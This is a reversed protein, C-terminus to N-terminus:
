RRQVWMPSSWALEGDFQRVRSSALVLSLACALHAVEDAPPQRAALVERKQFTAV